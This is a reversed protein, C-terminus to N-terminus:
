RHRLKFQSAMRAGAAQVQAETGAKNFLTRTQRNCEDLLQQLTEAQAADGIL